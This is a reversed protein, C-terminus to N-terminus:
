RLSGLWSFDNGSAFMYTAFQGMSELSPSGEVDLMMLNDESLGLLAYGVPQDSNSSSYKVLISVKTNSGRDSFSAEENYGEALVDTRLKKFTAKDDSSARYSFYKAKEIGDILESLDPIEAGDREAWQKSLRAFMRLTSKYFYFSQDPEYKDHYEEITESQGFASVSLVLLLATIVKKM